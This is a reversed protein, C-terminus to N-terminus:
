VNFAHLRLSLIMLTVRLIVRGFAHFHPQNQCLCARLRYLNIQKAEDLLVFRIKIVYSVLWSLSAPTLTRIHSFKGMSM